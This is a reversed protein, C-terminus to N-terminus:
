CAVVAPHITQRCCARTTWPEGAINNAAAAAAAASATPVLLTSWADGGVKKGRGKREDESDIDVDDQGAAAAASAAAGGAGTMQQQERSCVDAPLEGPTAAAVGEVAAAAAVHV